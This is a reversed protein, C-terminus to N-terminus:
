LDGLVSTPAMERLDRLEKAIREQLQREAIQKVLVARQERLRAAEAETPGHSPARELAPIGRRTDETRCLDFFQGITPPEKPYTVVAESACTIVLEDTFRFLKQRWFRRALLVGQDQGMEDVGNAFREIARAGYSVHWIAFVKNIVEPTAM